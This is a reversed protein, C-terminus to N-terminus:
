NQLALLPTPTPLFSRVLLGSGDTSSTARPPVPLRWSGTMFGRGLDNWGTDALTPLPLVGAARGFNIVAKELVRCICFVPALVGEEIVRPASVGEGKSSATLGLSM